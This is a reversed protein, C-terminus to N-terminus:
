LKLFLSLPVLARDKIIIPDLDFIIEENNVELKIPDSEAWSLSSLLLMSIALLAIKKNM